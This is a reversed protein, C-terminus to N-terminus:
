LGGLELEPYRDALAALDAPCDDIALALRQAVEALQEAADM